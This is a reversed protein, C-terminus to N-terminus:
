YLLLYQKGMAMLPKTNKHPVVNETTGYSRLLGMIVRIYRRLM